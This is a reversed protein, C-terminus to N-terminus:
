LVIILNLFSGVSGISNDLYYIFGMILVISPLFKEELGPDLRPDNM